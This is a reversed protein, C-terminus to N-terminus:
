RMIFFVFGIRNFLYKFTHFFFMPLSESPFDYWKIFFWFYKLVNRITLTVKLNFAKICIGLMDSIESANLCKLFRTHDLNPESLLTKWTRKM